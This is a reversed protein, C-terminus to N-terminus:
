GAGTLARARARRRDAAYRLLGDRETELMGPVPGPVVDAEAAPVHVVLWGARALRDGLDVADVPGLHRPDYGDVSEWASRRLLVCRGSVWGVPGATRPAGLPLHGRRAERRTPLPGAGGGPLRPGLVAARPFRAAAARLADLAGPRLRVGADLALVWGVDPPLAVVGRDVAAARALRETVPVATTGPPASGDADVVVVPGTGAPLAALLDAAGPTWTVVGIGNSM